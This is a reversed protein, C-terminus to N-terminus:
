LHISRYVYIYIIYIYIYIYVYIYIYIYIYYVQRTGARRMELWLLTSIWPTCPFGLLPARPVWGGSETARLQLATEVIRHTLTSACVLRRLTRTSAFQSDSFSPHTQTLPTNADSETGRLQLAAEVIRHTLTSACVLRRLTRTSAFQSFFPLANCASYCVCVAYVSVAYASVACLRV